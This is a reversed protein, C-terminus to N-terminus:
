KVRLISLFDNISKQTDSLVSWRMFEKRNVVRTVNKQTMSIMELIAEVLIVWNAPSVRSAPVIRKGKDYIKPSTKASTYPQFTERLTIRRQNAQITRLARM